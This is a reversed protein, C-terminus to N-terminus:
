AKAKEILEARILAVIAKHGKEAQEWTEYRHMESGDGGRFVLTEFLIPLGRGWNHDLGLFVTSVRVGGIKDDAVYRDATGFWIAWKQVDPEPVALKGLLVFYLGIRHRGFQGHDDYGGTPAAPKGFRRRPDTM